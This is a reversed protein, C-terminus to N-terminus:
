EDNPTDVGAVAGGDSAEIAGVGKLWRNRAPPRARRKIASLV